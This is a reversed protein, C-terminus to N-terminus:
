TCAKSLVPYPNVAEGGDPHMEFHVHTRGGVANGTNGVYGIVDGAAVKGSRAFRDLHSAIYLTGDDGYLDAQNGGISGVVQEVTGDIPAYVPTGRPAFLDNGTHFRGGSRPFGWDNFFTAGPVPCLWDGEDIVLATGAQIIDPNPIENVAALHDVSTSFRLAIAGLTDGPRVTYSVPQRAEVPPSPGDLRLQTGVYVLDPNTIGNAAALQDVTLGLRSAITELTDGTRVLYTDSGPIVLTDGVLIRDPDDLHNARALARVTTGHRQAIKSLTDGSQVVYAANGAVIVLVLALFVTFSRM